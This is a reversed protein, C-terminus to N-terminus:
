EAVTFPLEGVLLYRTGYDIEVRVQYVGRALPQDLKVPFARTAQPLVGVRQPNFAVEAIRRNQADFIKVKGRPRILANGDNSLEVVVEDAQPVSLNALKAQYVETKPIRVDVFAGVRFNVGIGRETYSPGSEFFIMAYYGGEAREPANISVRVTATEGAPIDLESPVVQIWKACSRETSGPPPFDHTGDPLHSVDRVYITLHLSQDTRANHVALTKGRRGAAPVAVEVRAPEVNFGFAWADAAWGVVLILLCGIIGGRRAYRTLRLAYRFGDPGSTVRQVNRTVSM